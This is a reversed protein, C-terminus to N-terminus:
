PNGMNIRYAKPTQGKQYRHEIHHRSVETIAGAATLRKLTRQITRQDRKTIKSLTSVSPYAIRVDNAYNCLVLLVHNDTPHPLKAKPLKMAWAIAQISM